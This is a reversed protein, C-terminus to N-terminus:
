HSLGLITAKCRTGPGKLIREPNSGASLHLGLWQAMPAPLWPMLQLVRNRTGAVTGRSTHAIRDTPHHM